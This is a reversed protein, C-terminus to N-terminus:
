KQANEKTEVVGLGSLLRTVVDQKEQQTLHYLWLPFGGPDITSKGYTDIKASVRACVKTFSGYGAWALVTLPDNCEFARNHSLGYRSLFANMLTVVFRSTDSSGTLTRVRRSSITCDHTVDWPICYIPMGSQLVEQAALADCYLNFEADQTGTDPCIPGSNGPLTFAGGMIYIRRIAHKVTDPHNRLLRALNTCPGTVIYDVPANATLLRLLAEMDFHSDTGVVTPNVAAPLSVDCLGNTGVFEGASVVSEIPHAELPAASGVFVPIDSRVALALLNCTNKTAHSLTTNGYSTVVAALPMGVGLALLLALADDEGTDVDLVLANM